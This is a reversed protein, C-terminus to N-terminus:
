SPSQTHGSSARGGHGPQLALYLCPFYVRCSLLSHLSSFYREILAIYFSFTGNILPLTPKYHREVVALYWEIDYNFLAFAGFPNNLPTYMIAPYPLEKGSGRNRHWKLPFFCETGKIFVTSLECVMNCISRYINWCICFLYKWVLPMLPTHFYVLKACCAMVSCIVWILITSMISM